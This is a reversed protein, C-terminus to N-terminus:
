DDPCARPVVGSFGELVPGGIGCGFASDELATSAVVVGAVLGDLESFLLIQFEVCVDQFSSTCSVVVSVQVSCMVALEYLILSSCGSSSNPGSVGVIFVLSCAMSLMTCM